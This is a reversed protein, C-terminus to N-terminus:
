GLLWLSLSSSNRCPDQKSVIPLFITWMGRKSLAFIANMILMPCGRRQLQDLTLIQGQNVEWCLFLDKAACLIEVGDAVSVVRSRPQLAKYMLQVSFGGGKDRGLLAQREVGKVMAELGLQSLLGHSISRQLQFNEIFILTGHLEIKLDEVFIVTDM